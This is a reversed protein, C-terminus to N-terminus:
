TAIQAINQFVSHGETTTLKRSSSVAASVGLLGKNMITKIDDKGLVVNFIAVDDIGGELFRQTGQMSGFILTGVGKTIDL